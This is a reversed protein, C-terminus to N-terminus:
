LSGTSLSMALQVLKATAAEAAEQSAPHRQSRVEELDAPLRPCACHQCCILPSLRLSVFCRM